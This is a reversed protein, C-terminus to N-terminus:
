IRKPNDEYSDRKDLYEKIQTNLDNRLVKKDDPSIDSDSKCLDELLNIIKIQYNIVKKKKM